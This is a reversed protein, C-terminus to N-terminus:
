SAVCRTMSNLISTMRNEQPTTRDSSSWQFEYLGYEEHKISESKSELGEIMYTCLLGYLLNSFGIFPPLTVHNVMWDDSAMELLECLDSRSWDECGVKWVKIFCEGNWQKCAIWSQSFDEWSRWGGEVHHLILQHSSVCASASSLLRGVTILLSHRPIIM